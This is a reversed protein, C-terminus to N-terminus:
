IVNPKLSENPQNSTEIIGLKWKKYHTNTPFVLWHGFTSSTATPSQISPTVDFPPAEPFHSSYNERASVGFM